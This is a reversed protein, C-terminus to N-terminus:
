HDLAPLNQRSLEDLIGNIFPPTQEEGFSKALQVAESITVYPHVEKSHLLEYAALRLLNRDIFGLRSLKWNKLLPSLKEDLNSRYQLAGKVLIRVSPHISRPTEFHELLADLESDSLKESGSLDCQYLIQLATSRTSFRPNRM